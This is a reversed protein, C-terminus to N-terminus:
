GAGQAVALTNGGLVACSGKSGGFSQYTHYDHKAGAANGVSRRAM